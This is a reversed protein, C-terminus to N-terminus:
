EINVHQEDMKQKKVTRVLDIKEQLLQKKLAVIEQTNKNKEIISEMFQKHLLKQDAEEQKKATSVQKIKNMYEEGRDAQVKANTSSNSRAINNNNEIRSSIEQL